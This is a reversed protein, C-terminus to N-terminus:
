RCSSERGLLSRLARGIDPATMLAEGILFSSIGANMLHEIDARNKLASEAVVTRDGPIQKRLRCSTQIDTAFTDLNRNNIGIMEAKAALAAQLEEETHVEVLPCLGLAESLAIFEFLRPGLARVILLIADAGVARTEYVQLPDIIFDKRLVPLRVERRVSTLDSTHGLFYTQDTLVSVAAAGNKEYTKAIAAPDFHQLMRGRSPSACKVEAIVACDRGGLAARFDRCTPLGAIADRLREITTEKKLRAVEEKKTEVIKDLIM